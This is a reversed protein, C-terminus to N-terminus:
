VQAYIVLAEGTTVTSKAYSTKVQVPYVSLDSIKSTVTVTVQQAIDSSVVYSWKGEQLLFISFHIFDLFCFRSISYLWM